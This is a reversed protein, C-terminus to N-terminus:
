DIPGGIARADRLSAIEEATLGLETLVEDTHSGAPVASGRLECGTRDFRPAPGPQVVGDLTVFTGREKVHPHEPAEALSLVPAFCAESGEMLRCWQDRTKSKFVAAMRERAVPWGDVALQDPLDGGDLGALRLLEAYFQPEIAGIAVHKGDATEYIQYFPAAGDLLNSGRRDNWFGIAFAGYISAMLSSAGDIMAADVVQGRGSRSAELIASVVGLALFLSGGGFDGILNLPIIPPGDAPGIAHLAGTLAIYNVDHGAAQSLPGQQGWGTMRGYVLKPNRKLCVEPGLGLRETVAPRFGEILADAREVLRLVTEVGGPNKLDVAVSRRGRALIDYKPEGWSLFPDPTMRDVRIVDAGLDALLMGAYPVPGIGAIEVIRVGSLPGM